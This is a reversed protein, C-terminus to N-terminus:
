THGIAQFGRLYSKFGVLVVLPYSKKVNVLSGLFGVGLASHLFCCFLGVVVPSHLFDLIYSVIPLPSHLLSKFVWFLPAEPSVRVGM